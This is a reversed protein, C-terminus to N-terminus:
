MVSMTREIEALLVLKDKVITPEDSEFTIRTSDKVM